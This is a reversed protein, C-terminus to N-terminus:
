RLPLAGQRLRIKVAEGHTEVALAGSYGAGLALNELIWAAEGGEALRALRAAAGLTVDFSDLPRRLGQGLAKVFAEKRTWIQFFGEQWDAPALAALAAQEAASFFRAAVEPEVRRQAEIDIGIRARATVALAAWDGSHSLNFAPGGPLAPKGEPGYAFRLAAAAQGLHEALVLRLGARAARFRAADEAYVFRAARAEEEASLVAAAPVDLRWFWLDVPIAVRRM